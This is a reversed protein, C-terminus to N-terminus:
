RRFPGPPEPAASAARHTPHLRLLDPACSSRVVLVVPVRDLLALLALLALVAEASLARDADDDAAACRDWSPQASVAASATVM